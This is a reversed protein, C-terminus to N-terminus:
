QAFYGKRASVIDIAGSEAQITISRWGSRNGRSQYVLTYRSNIDEIIRRVERGVSTRTASAISGGTMQAARSLFPAPKGLVVASVVSRTGSIRRLAAEDTLVSNRDGGDTIVIVYTRRM